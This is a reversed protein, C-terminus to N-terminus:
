SRRLQSHFVNTEREIVQFTRQRLDQATINEKVAYQPGYFPKQRYGSLHLVAERMAKSPITGTNVCEGGAVYRKEVIAVRKGLRAAQIAAHHGAPGSGIVVLNFRQEM